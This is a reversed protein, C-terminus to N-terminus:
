ALKRRKAFGALGLLGSGFLWVAAPVPVAAPLEGTVTGELHLFYPVSGFSSPDGKPVQAAYDLVYTDGDSCDTACVMTAFGTNITGGETGFNAADGGMPILEIGNWAIAWGSMDLLVNGAGDNSAVNIPATTYTMGTNGLFQWPNDISPNEGALDEPTSLSGFDTHSGSALQSTVGDVIVGELMSIPIKEPDTIVFDGDTELAFYSGSTGYTDFNCGGTENAGYVCFKAGADFNLVAASATTVVTSVGIIGTGLVLAVATSSLTKKMHM